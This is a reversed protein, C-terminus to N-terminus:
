FESVLGISSFLSIYKLDVQGQDQGRTVNKEAKTYNMNNKWYYALPFPLSKIELDRVLNTEVKFGHGKINNNKLGHDSSNSLLYNFEGELEFSTKVEFGLEKKWRYGIASSFSKDKLMGTGNNLQLFLPREEYIGSLYFNKYYFKPVLKLLQKNVGVAGATYDMQYSGAELKFTFDNYSHGVFFELNKLFVTNAKASGLFGTQEYSFFRPGFGVGVFTRQVAPLDLAPASDMKTDDSLSLDKELDKELDKDTVLAEPAAKNVQLGDVGLNITQGITIKNPNMITPNLKLVKKLAGKKGYIRKDPYTRQIIESLTDKKEIQYEQAVIQTSFLISSLCFVSM